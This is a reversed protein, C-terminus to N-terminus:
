LFDFIKKKRKEPLIRIFHTRNKHFISSIQKLQDELSLEFLADIIHKRAIGKKTLEIQIKTPGLFNFKFKDRAYKKAFDANNTYGKKNLENIIPKILSFDFGKKIAKTKLEESSHDRRGLLTIMYNKVAWVRESAIITKFLLQDFVTDRSLKYKAITGESVDLVFIKNVFISFRNKNKKQGVISTIKGSHTGLIKILDVTSKEGNNMTSNLKLHMHKTFM